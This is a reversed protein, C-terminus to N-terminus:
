VNGGFSSMEAETWQPFREAASCTATTGLLQDHQVEVKRASVVRLRGSHFGSGAGAARIWVASASFRDGPLSPWNLQNTKFGASIVFDSCGTMSRERGELFLVSSCLHVPSFLWIKWFINNIGKNNTIHILVPHVTSLYHFREPYFLFPHLIFSLFTCLYANKQCQFSFFIGQNELNCMWLTLLCSNKKIVWGGRMVRFMM